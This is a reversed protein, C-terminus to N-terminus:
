GLFLAMERRRRAALGAPEIWQKFAEAADNRQGDNLLTVVSSAKFRREGITFCLSVLASFENRNIAMTVAEAVAGACGRVDQHLLAEAGAATITQGPKAGGHGYGIRWARGQRYAKLRLGESQRIIQLGATNITWRHAPRREGASAARSEVSTLMTLVLLLIWGLRVV